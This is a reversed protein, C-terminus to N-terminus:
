AGEVIARSSESHSQHRHLHSFVRSGGVPKERDM